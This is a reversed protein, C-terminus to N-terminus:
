YRFVPPFPAKFALLAAGCVAIIGAIWHMGAYTVQMRNLCHLLLHWLGPTCEYRLRHAFLDAVTSGRALQWAQAEDAWPEHNLIGFSVLAAYACVIASPVWRSPQAFGPVAVSPRLEPALTAM